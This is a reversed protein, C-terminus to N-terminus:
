LNSAPAARNMEGVDRPSGQRCLKNKLRMPSQASDPCSWGRVGADPRCAPGRGGERHHSSDDPHTISLSAPTFPVVSPLCAGDMVALASRQGLTAAGTIPLCFSKDVM